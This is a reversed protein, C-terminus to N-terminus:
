IFLPYEEESVGRKPIRQEENYRKIGEKIQIYQKRIGYAILGTLTLLVFPYVIKELKM